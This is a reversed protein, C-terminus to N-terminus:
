VVQGGCDVPDSFRNAVAALVTRAPLGDTLDSLLAALRPRRSALDTLRQKLTGSLAGDLTDGDPLLRANMEGHLTQAIMALRCLHGAANGRTMGAILRQAPIGDGELLGSLETVDAVGLLAPIQACDPNSTLNNNQGVTTDAWGVWRNHKGFDQGHWAVDLGTPNFRWKLYKPGRAFGQQLDLPMVYWRVAM